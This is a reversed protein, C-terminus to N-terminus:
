NQGECSLQFHQKFSFGHSHVSAFTFHKNASQCANTLLIVMQQRTHPCVWWQNNNCHNWAVHLKNQLTVPSSPLQANNPINTLVALVICAWQKVNSANSMTQKPNEKKKIPSPHPSFCIIFSLSIIAMLKGREAAKWVKNSREHYVATCGKLNNHFWLQSCIVRNKKIYKLKQTLCKCKWSGGEGEIKQKPECESPQHKTIIKCLSLIQNESTHGM